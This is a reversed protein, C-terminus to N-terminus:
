FCEPKIKWVVRGTEGPFDLTQLKQSNKPLYGNSVCEISINGIGAIKM